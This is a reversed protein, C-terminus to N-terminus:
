RLYISFLFVKAEFSIGNLFNEENFNNVLSKGNKIRISKNISTKSLLPIKSPSKRTVNIEESEENLIKESEIIDRSPM